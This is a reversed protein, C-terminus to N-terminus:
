HTCAPGWAQRHKSLVLELDSGDRLEWSLFIVPIKQDTRVPEQSGVMGGRM